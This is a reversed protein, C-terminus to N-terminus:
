HYCVTVFPNRSSATGTCHPGMDLPRRAPVLTLPGEFVDHIIIVHFRGVGSRGTSLCVPSFVNNERLKTTRHYFIM